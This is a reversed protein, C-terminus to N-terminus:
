RILFPLMIWLYYRRFSRKINNYKKINDNNDLVEVKTININKDIYIVQKVLSQNNSYKVKTTIMYGNETEAFIKESDGEIDSLLVQLM